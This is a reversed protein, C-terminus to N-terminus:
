RLPVPPESLQLIVEVGSSALISHGGGSSMTRRIRFGTIPGGNHEPGDLEKTM